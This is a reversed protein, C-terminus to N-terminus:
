KPFHEIHTEGTRGYYVARRGALSVVYAVCGAQLIRRCFEIYKIDGAQIARVAADVSPADFIAAPVEDITHAPALHSTGDPLYYIKESRQLDTHYREIGAAMLKEVVEPFTLREQDSGSTCEDLVAIIDPHM